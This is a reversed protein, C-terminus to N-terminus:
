PTIQGRIEGGGNGTTHINIYAEGSMIAQAT